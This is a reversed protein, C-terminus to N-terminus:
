YKKALEEAWPPIPFDGKKFGASLDQEAASEKYLEWVGSLDPKGESRRPTAATM